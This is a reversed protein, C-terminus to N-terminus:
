LCNLPFNPPNPALSDAQRLRAHGKFAFGLSNNLLVFLYLSSLPNLWALPSLFLPRTKLTGFPHGHRSLINAPSPERVPIFGAQVGGYALWM